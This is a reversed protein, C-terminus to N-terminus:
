WLLSWLMDKNRRSNPPVELQPYGWVDKFNPIEEAEEEQEHSTEEALQEDLSEDATSPPLISEERSSRLKKAAPEEAITETTTDASITEEAMLEKPAHSPIISGQETSADNAIPNQAPQHATAPRLRALRRKPKCCDREELPLEPARSEPIVAM